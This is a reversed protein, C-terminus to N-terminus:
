HGDTENETLQSATQRKWCSVHDKDKDTQRDTLRGTQRDIEFRSNERLILYVLHGFCFDPDQFGESLSRWVLSPQGDLRRVVTHPVYLVFLMFPPCLNTFITFLFTYFQTYTHPTTKCIKHINALPPCALVRHLFGGRGELKFGM